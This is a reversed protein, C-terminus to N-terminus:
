FHHLRLVYWGIFVLLGQALDLTKESRLLVHLSLYEVIEEAMAGQAKVDQASVVMVISKFLFPKNRSLSYATTNPPIAVFPFEPAVEKLYLQLIAEPDQLDLGRLPQKTSGTIGTTSPSRYSPPTSGYKSSSSASALYQPAYIPSFSDQSAISDNTDRSTLLQQSVDPHLM